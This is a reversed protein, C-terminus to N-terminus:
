FGLEVQEAAALEVLKPRTALEWAHNDLRTNESLGYTFLDRVSAPTVSVTQDAHLQISTNNFTLGDNSLKSPDLHLARMINAVVGTRKYDPDLWHGIEQILAEHMGEGVDLFTLKKEVERFRGRKTVGSADVLDVNIRKARAILQTLYNRDAIQHVRMKRWDHRQDIPASDNARDSEIASEEENRGLLDVLDLWALWRLFNDIPTYRKCTEAVVMGYEGASPFYLDFRYRRGAARNGIAEVGEGLLGDHDGYVGAVVECRVLSSFRWVDSIVMAPQGTDVGDIPKSISGDALQLDPLYKLVKGTAGVLLAHTRSVYSDGLDGLSDPKRWSNRKGVAAKYVRYGYRRAPAM